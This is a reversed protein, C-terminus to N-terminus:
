KNEKNDIVVFEVENGLKDNMKDLEETPIQMYLDIVPNENGRKQSAIREVVAAGTDHAFFRGDGNKSVDKLKEIFVWSGYPIVNPDVAITIGQIALYEGDPNKRATESGFSDEKNNYVTLTAINEM